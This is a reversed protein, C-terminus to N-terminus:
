FDNLWGNEKGLTVNRIRDQTLKLRAALLINLCNLLIPAPFKILQEYTDYLQFSIPQGIDFRDGVSLDQFFFIIIQILHFSFNSKSFVKAQISGRQGHCHIRFLGLDNM